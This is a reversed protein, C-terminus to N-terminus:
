RRLPALPVASRLSLGRRIVRVEPEVPDGVPQGSYYTLVHQHRLDEEIRDFVLEIRDIWPPDVEALRIHFLRGGTRQSIWKLRNRMNQRQRAESDADILRDGFRTVAQTVTPDLEIFYIPLGLRVAFDTSQKPRSRSHRDAGDTIVVLARRGPERRYQLLSFLLADNLATGGFPILRGLASVLLAEDGSLPQLLRVRDDFDVLFGRDGPSLSSGMFSAAVTQLDRWIPLVSDSSDVALGLSLPIDNSVFLNRVQRQEGDERVEFDEPKLDSAPNGDRDVVLVQLQVLQVDIENQFEAGVLLEADERERGDVLRASVRLFDGPGVNVIRAAVTVRTGDAPVTLDSVVSVLEESRYFEVRELAAARPVWVGAEVRVGDVDPLVRAIRVTFPTDLRNLVVSDSGLAEGAAGWAEVHLTQERVPDALRLHTAFPPRNARSALQGDLLFDVTAIRPDVVLTQVRIRGGLLEGHRQPPVIRITAPKAVYGDGASGPREYVTRFEVSGPGGGHFEAVRVLQEGSRTLTEVRRWERTATQITSPDELRLLRSRVNGRPRHYEGLDLPYTLFSGRGDQLMISGDIVRILVTDFEDAADGALERLLRAPANNGPWREGTKAVPDESLQDNRIWPGLLPTLSIHDYTAEGYQQAVAAHAASLSTVLGFAVLRRRVSCGRRRM